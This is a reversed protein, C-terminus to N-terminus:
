ESPRAPRSKCARSLIEVFSSNLVLRYSLWRSVAPGKLLVARIHRNRLGAVAEATWHDVRLQQAVSLLLRSEAADNVCAMRSGPDKALGSSSVTGPGRFRGGRLPFSRKGLSCPGLQP